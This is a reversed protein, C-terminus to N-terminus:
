EDIDVLMELMLTDDDIIKAGSKYIRRIPLLTITSEFVMEDGILKLKYEITASTELMGIKLLRAAIKNSKIQHKMLAEEVSEM